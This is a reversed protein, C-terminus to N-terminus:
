FGRSKKFEAYEKPSMEAISKDGKQINKGQLPLNQSIRTKFEEEKKNREQELLKDVYDKMKKGYEVAKDANMHESIDIFDNLGLKSYEETIKQKSLLKDVRQKEAEFEKERLELLEKYKREEKLREEMLQKEKALSAEEAKKSALELAARKETERVRSTIEDVDAQTYTKEVPKDAKDAPLTQTKDVNEVKDTKVELM